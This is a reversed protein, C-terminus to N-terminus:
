WFVVVDLVTKLLGDLVGTGAGVLGTPTEATDSAQELSSNTDSVPQVPSVAFTETAVTYGDKVLSVNYTGTTRDVRHQGTVPQEERRPTKLQVTCRECDTSANFAVTDNGVTHTVAIEPRDTVTVTKRRDADDDGALKVAFSVNGTAQDEVVTPLEVTHVGAAV